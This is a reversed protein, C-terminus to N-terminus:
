PKWAMEGGRFGPHALESVVFYLRRFLPHTNISGIKFDKQWGTAAFELREIWDAVAPRLEDSGYSPGFIVRLRAEARETLDGTTAFIKEAFDTQYRAPM